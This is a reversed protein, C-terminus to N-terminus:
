AGETRKIFKIGYEDLVGGLVSEAAEQPEQPGKDENESVADSEEQKPALAIDSAQTKVFTVQTAEISFGTSDGQNDYEFSLSTIVMNDLKQNDPMDISIPRRGEYFAKMQNVFKERNKTDPNSNSMLDSFFGDIRDIENVVRLAKNNVDNIIGEAKSIQSQTRQPLYQDVVSLKDSIDGILGINKNKEIYIDSVDGSINITLPDLIIHDSIVTGDELTIAPVQATRQVTESVRALTTFGGIGLQTSKENTGSLAKRVSDRYNELKSPM